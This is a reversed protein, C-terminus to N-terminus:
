SMRLQNWSGGKHSKSSQGVIAAFENAFHKAGDARYHATRPIKSGAGILLSVLVAAPDAETHPEIVGVFDGALGNYAEPAM